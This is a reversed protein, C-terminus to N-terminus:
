VEFVKRKRMWVSNRYLTRIEGNDFEIVHRDPVYRGKTGDSLMAVWDFGPNSLKNNRVWMRWCKFVIAPLPNGNSDLTDRHIEGNKIWIADGSRFIVAPNDGERHMKGHTYWVNWTKNVIAPLDGARHKKGDKDLHVEESTLNEM